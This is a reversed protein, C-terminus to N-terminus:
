LPPWVCVGPCDGPPASDFNDRFEPWDVTNIAGDHNYDACLNALYDAAPYSADFGDRFAPWDGTNVFGDVMADGHCQTASQWCPPCCCGGCNIAGDVMVVSGFDAGVVGGGGRTNDAELDVTLTGGNVSDVRIVVLSPVSMPAPTTPDLRGMVISFFSVPGAPTGAQCPDAIPHQAAAGITYNCPDESAWDIHVDFEPSSSVVNSGDVVTASCTGSLRVWLAFAVPVDAASTAEYGITFQGDIPGPTATFTIDGGFSPSGLVAVVLLCLLKKM